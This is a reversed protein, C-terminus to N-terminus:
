ARSCGSVRVTEGIKLGFRKAASDNRVAVELHGASGWYALPEGEQVAAYHGSVPLQISFGTNGAAREVAPEIQVAVRDPEACESYHLSLVVNGFRDIRVIAARDPEAEVAWRLQVIREPPLEEGLVAAGEPSDAARAPEEAPGAADRDREAAGPTGPAGGRGAFLPAALRAALPAFLDRGDFTTAYAPRRASLEELVPHAARFYRFPGFRRELLTVTGNDPTVLARERSLAILERRESGVGPDVVSLVVCTEPLYPWASALAYSASSIQQPAMEHGLDIFTPDREDKSKNLKHYERLIVAKMIGVYPDSNGFDSLLAVPVM